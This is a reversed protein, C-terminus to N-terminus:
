LLDNQILNSTYLAKKKGKDIHNRLTEDYKKLFDLFDLFMGKCVSSEKENHGRFPKGNKALCLTIDILRILVNRKQLREKERQSIAIIRSKDLTMNISKSSLYNTRATM